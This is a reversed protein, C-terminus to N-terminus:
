WRSSYTPSCGVSPTILLSVRISDDHIVPPSPKVNNKYEAATLSCTAVSFWEWQNAKGIRKTAILTWHSGSREYGRATVTGQYTHGPGGRTVTLVVKFSSLTTAGIQHERPQSAGRAGVALAAAILCAVVFAAAAVTVRRVATSFMAIRRVPTYM